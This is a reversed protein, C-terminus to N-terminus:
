RSTGGTVFGGLVPVSISTPLLQFVFPPWPGSKDAIVIRVTQPLEPLQPWNSQWGSPWDNRMGGIDRPVGLTSIELSTLDQALILNAAQSWDPFNKTDAWPTYRLVLAHQGETISERSLRMFFRGGLGPRSPIIGVWHLSEPTQTFLIEESRNSQQRKYRTADVKTLAGQLFSHTVRIHDIRALRDDIRNETQGISRMAQVLGLMIISMLTLAVLLEILTLGQQRSCRRHM